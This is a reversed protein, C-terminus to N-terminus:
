LWPCYLWIQLAITEV